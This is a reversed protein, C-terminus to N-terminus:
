IVEPALEFKIEFCDFDSLENEQLCDLYIDLEDLNRCAAIVIPNLDYHFMLELGLDLAKAISGNEKNRILYFTERFRSFSSNKFRSLPLIYLKNIVDEISSFSEKHKQYYEQVDCYHYPLFAKQEKESILLIPNDNLIKKSSNNQLNNDPFDSIMESLTLPLAMKLAQTTNKEYDLIEYQFKEDQKNYEVLNAKIENDLLTVDDTNQISDKQECLSFISKLTTELIHSFQYINGLDEFSKKLLSISSVFDDSKKEDLYNTIAIMDTLITSLTEKKSEYIRIIHEIRNMEETLKKRLDMNIFNDLNDFEYFFM